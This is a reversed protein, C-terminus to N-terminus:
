FTAPSANTKHLFNSPVCIYVEIYKLENAVLARTIVIGKVTVQAM